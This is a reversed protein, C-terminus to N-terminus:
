RYLLEELIQEATKNAHLGLVHAEYYMEIAKAKIDAANNSAYETQHMHDTNM